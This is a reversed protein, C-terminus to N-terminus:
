MLHMNGLKTLLYLVFNDLIVPRLSSDVVVYLYVCLSIIFFVCLCVYINVKIILLVFLIIICM